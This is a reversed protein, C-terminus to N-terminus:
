QLHSNSRNVHTPSALASLNATSSRQFASSPVPRFRSLRKSTRPRTADRRSADLTSARLVYFRRSFTIM